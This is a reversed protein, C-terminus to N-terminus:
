CLVVNSMLFYMFLVYGVNFIELILFSMQECKSWALAPSSGGTSVQYTERRSITRSFIGCIIEVDQGSKYKKKTCLFVLMCITAHIVDSNKNHQRKRIEEGAAWVGAQQPEESREFGHFVQDAVLVLPQGDLNDRSQQQQGQQSKEEVAHRTVHDLFHQSSSINSHCTQWLNWCKWMGSADRRERRERKKEESEKTKRCWWLGKLSIQSLTSLNTAM